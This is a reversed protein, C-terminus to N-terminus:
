EVRASAEHGLAVDNYGRGWIRRFGDFSIAGKGILLTSPALNMPRRPAGTRRLRGPEIRIESFDLRLPKAM